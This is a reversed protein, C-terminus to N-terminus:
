RCKHFHGLQARTPCLISRKCKATGPHICATSQEAGSYPQACSVNWQVDEMVFDFTQHLDAWFWLNLHLLSLGARALSPAHTTTYIAIVVQWLINSSLQKMTSHGICMDASRCSRRRWSHLAAPPTTPCCEWGHKPWTCHLAVTRTWQSWMQEQLWGFM